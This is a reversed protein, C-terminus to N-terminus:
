NCADVFPFKAISYLLTASWGALWGKHVAFMLQLGTLPIPRGNYAHYCGYKQAVMRFVPYWICTSYGIVMVVLTIFILSTRVFEM